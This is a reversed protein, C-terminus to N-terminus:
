MEGIIERLRKIEKKQYGIKRRLIRVHEWHSSRVIRLKKRLRAYKNGLKKAIRKYDCPVEDIIMKDLFSM